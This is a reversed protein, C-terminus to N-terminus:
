RTNVVLHLGVSAVTEERLDQQRTKKCVEHAEHARPHSLEYIVATARHPANNAYSFCDDHMAKLHKTITNRGFRKAGRKSCTFLMDEVKIPPGQM